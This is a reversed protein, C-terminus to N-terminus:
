TQVSNLGIFIAKTILRTLPMMTRMKPMRVKVPFVNKLLRDKKKAPVSISLLTIPIIRKMMPITRIRTKRM